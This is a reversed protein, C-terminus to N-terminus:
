LATPATQPPSPAYVASGFGLGQWEGPLDGFIYYNHFVTTQLVRTIQENHQDLCSVIRAYDDHSFLNPDMYLNLFYREYGSKPENWVKYESNNMQEHRPFVGKELLKGKYMIELFVDSQGNEGESVTHGYIDLTGGECPQSIALQTHGCASCTFAVCIISIFILSRSM